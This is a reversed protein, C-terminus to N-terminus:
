HALFLPHCKALPKLMGPQQQIPQQQYQAM